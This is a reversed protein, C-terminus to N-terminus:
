KNKATLIEANSSGEYDHSCILQQVNGFNNGIFITWQVYLM